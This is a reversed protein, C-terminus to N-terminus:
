REDIAEIGSKGIKYLIQRTPPVHPAFLVQLSRPNCSACSTESDTEFESNRISNRMFSDEIVRRLIVRCDVCNSWSLGLTPKFHLNERNEEASSPTIIDSVQNTLVVWCRREAAIRKLIASVRFLRAARLAFNSKELGDKLTRFLAALSDIIIMRIEFHQLLRPLKEYLIEWLKDESSVNELFVSNLLERAMDSANQGKNVICNDVMGDNLEKQIRAVIIEKLREVPFNGETYIYYIAYTGQLSFNQVQPLLSQATLTLASQTKGSGAEGSLEFIIGSLVGGGLTEDISSVGWPLKRRTLKNIESYAFVEDAERVRWWFPPWVYDGNRDKDEEKASTGDSM